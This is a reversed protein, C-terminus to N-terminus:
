KKTAILLNIIVGKERFKKEYETPYLFDVNESYFPQIIEIDFFNSEKFYEISDNFLDRNDTRFFIKGNDKLIRNYEKLYTPYSLRRHQQKKKPWPDPFNIYINSISEDKFMPLLKDIPSNIFKFNTIENKVEKAKKLSSAFANLNIEVGLCNKDKNHESLTLLFQGLGSGIELYDIDNLIDKDFNDLYLGIDKNEELVTNTWKKHRLRM